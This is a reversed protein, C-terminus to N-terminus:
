TTGNKKHIGVKTEGNYTAKCDCEIQYIIPKSTTKMNTNFLSNM